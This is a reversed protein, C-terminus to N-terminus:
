KWKFLTSSRRSQRLLNSDEELSSHSHSNIEYVEEEDSAASEIITKSVGKCNVISEIIGGTRVSHVDGDGTYASSNNNTIQNYDEQTINEKPVPTRSVSNYFSTKMDSLDTSAVETRYDEGDDAYHKNTISSFSHGNGKGNGAESSRRTSKPSNSHLRQLNEHLGSVLADAETNQISGYPFTDMGEEPGKPQKIHIFGKATKLPNSALNSPKLHPISIDDKRVLLKTLYSQSSDISSRVSSNKRNAYLNHLYSSLNRKSLPGPVSRRISRNLDVFVDSEDVIEEGILEEIVDELTLVGTAGSATGPSDSVVVMHSKGEQFYNLINLCSTDASTEPLTALPFSSVPLADEPDYSILVRVLLMGVFNTPEGPLYIPIRSFGRNFLEEVKAEDLITDASMTYVKNMPTMITHVPKEKLDLVASIITVEDQNLREVGMTRHLTVLTKLGSKKYVVGHDEGLIHDLLVAIPYAVPYMLYMLALVFPSFYAGIELGYRVCVSQPIVEGFIVISVTASFVAVLGGGLCRDLVVPLTENTIVNCLLLTVLVWHKGRGVLKLVEKANAQEKPSGSNAVVKLYIEDQGMLGLTLGAFVGGLLVLFASVILYIYFQSEPLDDHTETEKINLPLGTALKPLLTLGMFLRNVVNRAVVRRKPMYQSNM